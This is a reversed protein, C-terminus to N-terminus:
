LKMVRRITEDLMDAESGYVRIFAQRDNHISFDGQHHEKCLAIVLFHGSGIGRPHHLNTPRDCIVCGVQAVKAHYDKEAQTKSRLFSKGSSETCNMVQDTDLRSM